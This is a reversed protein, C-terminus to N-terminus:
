PATARAEAAGAGAGAEAPSPAAELAAALKEVAAMAADAGEPFRDFRSTQHFDLLVRRGEPDEHMALAVREIDGVLADELGARVGLVHRAVSPSRALIRFDSVRERLLRACGIDDIAGADVRGKLVWLLTNEDDRSFVYGVTDRPVASRVRVLEQLHLGREQLTARPLLYGSTSFPDDLAIIRGRLDELEQIPSDKRVFVISHYSAVGRKWRRLLPRFGTRRKMEAVPFPSDVYVDVEGLDLARAMADIDRVVVVRAGGIGHGSLRGALYDAFPQFDAIEEQISSSISGVRLLRKADEPEAAAPRGPLLLGLLGLLLPIGPRRLSPHVLRAM